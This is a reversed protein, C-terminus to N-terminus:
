ANGDLEDLRRLIDIAEARLARDVIRWDEESLKGTRRDVEADRIERYKGDREAELDARLGDAEDIVRATWGARLPAGVIWVVLGFLLVVVIPALVEM